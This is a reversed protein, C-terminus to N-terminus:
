LNDGQGLGLELGILELCRRALDKASVEILDDGDGADEEVIEDGNMESTHPSLSFLRAYESPLVWVTPLCRETNSTAIELLYPYFRSLTSRPLSGTNM